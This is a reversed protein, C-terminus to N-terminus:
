SGSQDLCRARAREALRLDGDLRGSLGFQGYQIILRLIGGFIVAPLAVTM